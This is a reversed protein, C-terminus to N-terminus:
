TSPYTRSLWDMSKREPHLQYWGDTTHVDYVMQFYEEYMDAVKDLSFNSMAWDRCAQPKIKDINQAAWMIHDFTRCRYGTLGHINNEAFAGWDTTIIPTGSMLHEISVGGFPELYQTLVFAGKARAMLRKRVDVDAYGIHLVHEPWEKLSINEPTGQGAIVLRAGLRRTVDIAIGVGKEDIIRGV